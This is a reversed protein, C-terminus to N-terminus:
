QPILSALKNLTPHILPPFITRNKGQDWANATRALLADYTATVSSDGSSFIAELAGDQRLQNANFVATLRRTRTMEKIESFEVVWVYDFSSQLLDQRIQPDVWDVGRLSVKFDSGHQLRISWEIQPKRQDATEIQGIIVESITRAFAAVNEYPYRIGSDIPIIAYVPLFRRHIKDAKTYLHLASNDTIRDNNGRPLYQSFDQGGEPMQVDYRAFPGLQDDHVYLKGIRESASNSLIDIKESYGLVTVAHLEGLQFNDDKSESIYLRGVLILPFKAECFTHIYELLGINRTKGSFGRVLCDLGKSQLYSQIQGANLGTTPFRHAIEGPAPMQRDSASALNSIDFLSEIQGTTIRHPLAHLTHWIATASCAAIEDDQEQFAISRVSLRMGGVMVKYTRLLPFHRNWSAQVGEGYIRLCTRGIVAEQLPRIVIFGLYGENLYQDYEGDLPRDSFYRFGDEVEEKKRSFFHLRTTKKGVDDTRFAYYSAYNKLHGADIYESEIAFSKAQIYRLYTELYRSRESQISSKRCGLNSLIEPFRIYDQIDM